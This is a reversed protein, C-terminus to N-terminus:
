QTQQLFARPKELEVFVSAIFRFVMGSAPNITDGEATVIQLDSEIKM